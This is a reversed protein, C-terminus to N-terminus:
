SSLWAHYLSEATDNRLSIRNIQKSNESPHNKEFLSLVACILSATRCSWKLPTPPMSAATLDVSLYNRTGQCAGELGAASFLSLRSVGM